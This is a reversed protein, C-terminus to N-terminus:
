KVELQGLTWCFIYLRKGDRNTAFYTTTKKGSVFYTKSFLGLAGMWGLWGFGKRHDGGEIELM